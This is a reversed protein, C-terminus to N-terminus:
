SQRQEVALRSASPDWAIRHTGTLIGLLETRVLEGRWGHLVPLGESNGHLYDLVLRQLDGMTAILAPSIQQREAVSQVVASLLSVLASEAPSLVPWTEEIVPCESEPIRLGRQVAAAIDSGIRELDRPHLGRIDRLDQVRRPSRRAIEILMDDKLVASRPKNRRRAESDRWKALEQLIALGRPSFKRAGKV